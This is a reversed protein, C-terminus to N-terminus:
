LSSACVTVVDNSVARLKFEDDGAQQKNLIQKANELDNCAAHYASLKQDRM